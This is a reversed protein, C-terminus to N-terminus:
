ATVEVDILGAKELEISVALEACLPKKQITNARDVVKRHIGCYTFNTSPDVFKAPKACKHYNSVFTYKGVTMLCTEKTHSFEDWIIECSM